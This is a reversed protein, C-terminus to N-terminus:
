TATAFTTFADEAEHGCGRRAAAPLVQKHSARVNGVPLGLAHAGHARRMTHGDLLSSRVCLLCAAQRLHTPSAFTSRRPGSSCRAPRRAAWRTWRTSPTRRWTTTVSPTTPSPTSSTTSAACIRTATTSAANSTREDQIANQWSPIDLPAIEALKKEGLYPLIKSEIMNAKNFKTTNRLKKDMDKCYLDYFANLTMDPTGEMQRLFDVEWATAAKKTKFGRKSKKCRRGTWDKYWCQVYYTGRVPDKSVSM